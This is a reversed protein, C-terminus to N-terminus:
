QFDSAIPIEKWPGECIALESATFMATVEGRLHVKDNASEAIDFVSDQM